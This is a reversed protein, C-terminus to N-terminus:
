GYLGVAAEVLCLKSIETSRKMGHSGQYFITGRRHNDIRLVLLLDRQQWWLASKAHNVKYTGCFFQPFQRVTNASIHLQGNNAAESLMWTSAYRRQTLTSELHAQRTPISANLDSESAPPATDVTAPKRSTQSLAHARARDLLGGGSMAFIPKLKSSNTPALQSPSIM